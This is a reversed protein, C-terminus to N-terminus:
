SSPCIHQLTNCHTVTHTATHTATHCTSMSYVTGLVPSLLLPSHQQSETETRPQQAQIKQQHQQTEIMQYQQQHQPRTEPAIAQAMAGAGATGGGTNAQFDGRLYDTAPGGGCKYVCISASVYAGLFASACYWSSVCVCLVFNVCPCVVGLQCVSLIRYFCENRPVVRCTSLCRDFETYTHPFFQSARSSLSVNM